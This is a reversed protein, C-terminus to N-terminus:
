RNEPWREGGSSSAPYLKLWAPRHGFLASYLSASRCHAISRITYTLGM